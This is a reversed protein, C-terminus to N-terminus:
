RSEPQNHKKTECFATVLGPISSPEYTIQTPTHNTVLTPLTPFKSSKFINRAIDPTIDQTPPSSLLAVLCRFAQEHNEKWSSRYKDQLSTLSIVHSNNYGQILETLSNVGLSKLSDIISVILNQITLMIKKDSVLLTRKELKNTFHENNDILIHLKSRQISLLQRVRLNYDLQRRMPLSSTKNAVIFADAILNLNIIQKLLLTKTIKAHRPTTCNLSNILAEACRTHYEVGVSSCGLGFSKTRERIIATSPNTRDM